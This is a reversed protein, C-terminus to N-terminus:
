AAARAYKGTILTASFYSIGIEDIASLTQKVVYAGNFWKLAAPWGSITKLALSNQQIILTIGQGHGAEPLNTFLVSTVNETLQLVFMNGLSWDITVVGAVSTLTTVVEHGDGAVAEINELAEGTVLEDLATAQWRCLGIAVLEGARVARQDRQSRDLSGQLMGVAGLLNQITAVVNASTVKAFSFKTLRM